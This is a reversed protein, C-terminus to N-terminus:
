SVHVSVSRLIDAVAAAGTSTMIMAAHDLGPMRRVSTLTHDDIQDPTYMPATDAGVSWEAYLLHIPAVVQEFRSAGFFVDEADGVVAETSLRVRGDLLDHEAYTRLLPDSPDLLPMSTATLFQVYEDLSWTRRTREIKDAFAAGVTERTLGAPPLTPIGGDVLVLDKVRDPYRAALEVAVFGGMSMGCVQIRDIGLEDLVAVLDEAHQALSSPGVVGVSDGRGRLDPVVLALDPAEARLWTWLARQSSIGHVLLIPESTGDFREVALVGGTVPIQHTSM